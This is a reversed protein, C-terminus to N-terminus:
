RGIVTFPAANLSFNENYAPDHLLEEGYRVQMKEIERNFRKVKEPTDEYGRSKSEYHYLEADHAWVNDRGLAKVRLCLDIDNFAVELTEDFGNVLNFDSKSIMLCAATVASYNYDTYLRSFYGPNDKGANLFTHGAVGGLGVIVGGHQITDDMYWLKAGVCGVRDFQCFGLMTEIWDSSIISTDNNLFLLYKGSSAEVALNNIRSYNFPMDLLVNKFRSGLLERYSAFLEQMKPDDSGNDAIIIEYNPYSSKNIISDVCTKLDEYGNRTPIVISVKAEEVLDYKVDYVGPYRGKKVVANIKRRKLAEQVSKVGIDYAYNKEGSALATSGTIARWHYLIKPIHAIENRNIKEVFRLLFDHDQAGEFGKRFGNIERAISTRYIGLHSVYNQNLILDPSWDPKFHPDFREGYEDIKDEDSYILSLDQNENLIKVVEYLANAPLEDDNDVLAIFEGKALALASNTAESIHGNEKRFVVKIRNDLNQLQKLTEKTEKKTSCDDALCIEWNKYWQNQISEVCKNLWEKEVNYVPILISILPEYALKTLDKRDGSVDRSERNVIWDKYSSDREVQKNKIKNIVGKTGSVRYVRVVKDIYQKSLKLVRVPATLARGVKWTKSRMIDAYQNEINFIHTDKDEIMMEKVRVTKEKLKLEKLQEEIKKSQEEIKKSQEEIKKSQEEIEKQLLDNIRNLKDSKEQLFSHQISLEDLQNKNQNSEEVKHEYQNNLERYWSGMHTTQNNLYEPYKQIIYNYVEIWKIRKLRDDGRNGQSNDLVRYNLYLNPVKTAKAGSHILSLFFDYDQMFLRNLEPDFRHSGLIGKKFLSCTDIFNVTILRGLSFDPAEILVEGTDSNKLSCYVIDSDSELLTNLSKEIHNPELYNDGDVILIYEGVAWDLGINRSLCAGLNKQNVYDTKKFPSKEITKRIIEDSEDTSGDNIVLLEITQISQNFISEICQKIFPAKNYCTVIVSVTNM